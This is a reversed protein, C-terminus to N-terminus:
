VGNRPIRKLWSRLFFPKGGELVTLTAEALFETETCSLACKAESVMDWDGAHRHAFLHREEVRASTPDDPRIRTVLEIVIEVEMGIEDLIKRGQDNIKTHVVENTAIDRVLTRSSQPRRLITAPTSRGLVAPEFWIGEDAAPRQRVPLSLSSGAPHVALRVPRPSPWVIPWYATSIALRLRHGAPFVHGIENLRLRVSYRKGPELPQPKEHGNRHTLNLVGYTVRLSSGNSRLENLRVAVFATPQDVALDLEVEPAGLITLDATLPESDFVLSAGDEERQDLPYDVGGYGCWQGGHQGVHQPSSIELGADRSVGTAIARGPASLANRGLEVRVSKIGPSPWSPEGVWRGPRVDYIGAPAVSEQMWARLMPERMIGTDVGNLWHDWWRKAEQLFGITPGPTARHPYEHGWPGVVGVRPCSLNALMRFIANSYGDGWGGVAFVACEIAGYDECVSGQKWYDDRMQHSLWTVFPPEWGELRERWMERWRDKGVMLSDPGRAMRVLFNTGWHMTDNLVCGGMYHMDDAYRDDTSCATIIAKLAPPRLAAVQLSNFGGWSIGMMGVKGTCWPQRAIWAIVEVGDDQEQKLYEDRIVGDSDGTGRVDVRLCAYGNEAFWSHTYNDRERYSDRRRYPVYELIAPVPDQEANEPLWLRVALRTGDKLPIWELEIERVRTPRDM